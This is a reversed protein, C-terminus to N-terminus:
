KPTAEFEAIHDFVVSQLAKTEALLDDLSPLYLGQTRRYETRKSAYAAAFEQIHQTSISSPLGELRSQNVLADIGHGYTKKLEKLTVGRKYLYSKLLLEAAHGVLYYTVLSVNLRMPPTQVLLSAAELYESSLSYLTAEDEFDPPSLPDVLQTTAV